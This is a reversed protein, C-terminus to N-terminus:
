ISIDWKGNIDSVFWELFIIESGDWNLVKIDVDKQFFKRIGYKNKM